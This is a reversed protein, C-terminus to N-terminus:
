SRARRRYIRGIGRLPRTVRWSMSQEIGRLQRNFRAELEGAPDDLGGIEGSISQFTRDNMEYEDELIARQRESGLLAHLKELGILQHVYTAHGNKRLFLLAQEIEARALDAVEGGSLLDGFGDLFVDLPMDDFFTRFIFYMENVARRSNDATVASANEGPLHRFEILDKDSVHIDYRKVLRVWMDFDPLQRLRNDYLGTSDYCARRILMTPHCLCNGRDFFHRLWSGRTRNEQDFVSGDPVTAKRISIGDRDIFRARGFSAGVAPNDQLVQMQHALKDEGIWQDDSNMLAVFEGRAARILENTVVGAGRNVAHPMFHLRDDRISEVMERTGDTSGDDAVLFEFEVGRQRLVSEAAQRVFGAHNYTAMVVSVQPQTM